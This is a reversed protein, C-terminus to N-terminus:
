WLRPDMPIKFTPGDLSGEFGARLRSAVKELFSLVTNNVSQSAPNSHLKSRITLFSTTTERFGKM